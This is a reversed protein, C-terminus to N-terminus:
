ARVIYSINQETTGFDNALDRGSLGADHLRRIEVVADATLKAKNNQKGCAHNDSM